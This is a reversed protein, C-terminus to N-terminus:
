SGFIRAIDYIWVSGALLGLLMGNRRATEHARQTISPPTCTLDITSTVSGAAYARLANASRQPTTGTRHISTGQAM